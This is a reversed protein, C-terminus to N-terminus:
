FNPTGDLQLKWQFSVYTTSADGTNNFERLHVVGYLKDATYVAYVSNSAVNLATTYTNSSFTQTYSVDGTGAAGDIKYICHVLPRGIFYKNGAATDDYYIYFDARQRGPSTSVVSRESFNYGKNLYLREEVVSQEITTTKGAPALPDTCGALLLATGLLIPCLAALVTQFSKQQKV